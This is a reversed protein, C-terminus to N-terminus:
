FRILALVSNSGPKRDPYKEPLRPLNQGDGGLLTTYIAQENPAQLYCVHKSPNTFTPEVLIDRLDVQISLKTDSVSIAQRKHHSGRPKYSNKGGERVM